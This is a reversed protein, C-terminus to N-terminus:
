RLPSGWYAHNEALATAALVHLNSGDANMVFFDASGGTSPNHSFLIRTGDPSWSPHFTAQDGSYSTLQIPGSGDPKITWINQTSAPEAPSNFAIRQDDPSWDPDNADLSWPTVQRLGKGDVGITFIAAREPSTSTDIREFALRTGDHSWAARHDELHPCADKCGAPAKNTTVQSPDTGDIDITWIGDGLFTGDAAFCFTEIALRKGDPSWGNAEVGADCGKAPFGTPVERLGSGDVNVVMVRGFTGDGAPSRYFVVWHGDPSLAPGSDTGDSTVIKHPDSGDANEIWVQSHVFSQGVDEFVIQGDAIPATASPRISPKPTSPTVSPDAPPASTPASPSPAGACSAAMLTAGVGAILRNVM